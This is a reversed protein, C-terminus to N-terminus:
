WLVNAWSSFGSGHCHTHFIFRACSNHRSSDSSRMVVSLLSDLLLSWLICWILLNLDNSLHVHASVWECVYWVDLWLYGCVIFIICILVHMGVCVSALKSKLTSTDWTTKFHVNGTLIFLIWLKVLWMVSFNNELLYINAKRFFFILLTCHHM